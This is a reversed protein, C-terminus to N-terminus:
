VFLFDLSDDSFDLDYKLFRYEVFKSFELFVDFFNDVMVLYAKDWPHLSPEVYSFRDIYYVMYVFKLTVSVLCVFSQYSLFKLDEVHKDTSLQPRPPSLCETMELTLTMFPWSLHVTIWAHNKLSDEPKSREQFSGVSARVAWKVIESLIVNELEMWKGAFKTIDNNKEAIYYEMTYIYWMEKDIRRKFPM